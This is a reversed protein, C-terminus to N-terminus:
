VVKADDGKKRSPHVTTGLGPERLESSVSGFVHHSERKATASRSFRERVKKKESQARMQACVDFVRWEPVRSRRCFNELFALTVKGVPIDLSKVVDFVELAGDADGEHCCTEILAELAARRDDEESGVRLRLASQGGESRFLSMAFRLEGCRAAAAILARAAAPTLIADPSSMLADGAFFFARPASPLRVPCFPGAPASRADVVTGSGADAANPSLEPVHDDEGWERAIGERTADDFVGMARRTMVRADSSDVALAARCLALILASAAARDPRYRMKARGDSHVRWATTVSGEISCARVLARYAAPGPAYGRVDMWGVIRLAREAYGERCLALVVGELTAREFRGGGRAIKKVEDLADDVRGAESVVRVLANQCRDNPCVGFRSMQSLLDYARSVALQSRAEADDLTEKGADTSRSESANKIQSSDPLNEGDARRSARPTNMFEARCANLLCGFTVVTPAVGASKMREFTAFAADPDRGKVQADILATYTFANAPETTEDAEALAFVRAAAAARDGPEAARAAATMLGVYTRGSRPVGAAVMDRHLEEARAPADSSACASILTNYTITDPSSAADEPLARARTGPRNEDEGGLRAGDGRSARRGNPEADGAGRPSARMSEYLAFARDARGAAAYLAIAANRVAVTGSVSAPATEFAELAELAEPSAAAFSAGSPGGGREDADEADSEGSFVEESAEADDEDGRWDGRRERPQGRCATLASALTYADLAVGCERMLALADLAERARGARACVSMHASWVAANPARRTETKETKETKSDFSGLSTLAGTIEGARRVADEAPWANAAVGRALVTLVSSAAHNNRAYTGSFEPDSVFREYTELAWRVSEARPTEEAAAAALAAGFTRDTPAVRPRDREMEALAAKAAPLDRARAAATIVSNYTRANPACAPTGRAKMAVCTERAASADGARACADVFANYVGVDCADGLDEVALALFRRAANLDGAKGAASVIGSYAFVDPPVGRESYLAFVRAANAFDKARACTTLASAYLRANPALASAYRRALDTRPPRSESCASLFSRHHPALARGVRRLIDLPSSHVAELTSVCTELHGRALASQFRRVIAGASNQAEAANRDVGRESVGDDGDDGDRRARRRDRRSVRPASAFGASRRREVNREDDSSANRASARSVDREDRPGPANRRERERGYMVARARYEADSSASRRRQPSASTARRGPRWSDDRRGEDESADEDGGNSPEDEAGRVGQPDTVARAAVDRSSSTTERSWLSRRSCERTAGGGTGADLSATAVGRRHVLFSTTM